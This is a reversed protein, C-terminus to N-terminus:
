LRLLMTLKNIYDNYSSFEFSMKIELNIGNVLTEINVWDTKFVRILYELKTRGGNVYNELNSLDILVSFNRTGKFESVKEFNDTKITDTEDSGIERSNNDTGFVTYQSLLMMSIILIIFFLTLVKKLKM